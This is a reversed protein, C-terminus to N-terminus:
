SFSKYNIYILNFILEARISLSDIFIFCVYYCNKALCNLNLLKKIIIIYLYYIIIVLIIFFLLIFLSLLFTQSSFLDSLYLLYLLFHFQSFFIAYKIEMTSM